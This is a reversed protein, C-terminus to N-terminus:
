EVIYLRAERAELSTPRMWHKKAANYADQVFDSDPTFGGGQAAVPWHGSGNWWFALTKANRAVQPKGKKTGLYRRGTWTTFYKLHESDSDIEIRAGRETEVVSGHWGLEIPILGQRVSPRASRRVFPYAAVFPDDEGVPQREQLEALFIPLANRAAERRKGRAWEPFNRLNRPIRGVWSNAITAWTAM